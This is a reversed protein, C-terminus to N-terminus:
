GNKRVGMLEYAANRAGDDSVLEQLLEPFSMRGLHQARELLFPLPSQPESKRFFDALESLLDLADERTNLRTGTAMVTNMMPADNSALVTDMARVTEKESTKEAQRDNVSPLTFPADKLIFRIHDAFDDLAQVIKSIPPSENECREELIHHLQSLAQHSSQLDAQLQQYFQPSSEQVAILIQELFVSGQQKRKEIVQKDTLKTNEIAQQYQWLAFPGVSSGATIAVHSIPRLLTGEYDDGNLSVLPALRTELGEEDPLPFITDWYQECLTTLLTLGETLGAFGRERLLAETLWTAIELDKTKTELAQLCLTVVKDWRPSEETVTGMAQQREIDRAATRADKIEFYLANVSHDDRLNVGVASTNNVPESYKKALARNM